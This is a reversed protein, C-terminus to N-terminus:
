KAARISGYLERLALEAARATDNAEILKHKQDFTSKALVQKSMFRKGDAHGRSMDEEGEADWMGESYGNRPMSPINNIVGTAEWNPHNIRTHITGAFNVGDPDKEIDRAGPSNKRIFGTATSPSRGSTTPTGAPTDSSERKSM